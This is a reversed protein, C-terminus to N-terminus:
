GAWRRSCSSSGGRRRWAQQPAGAQIPNVNQAAPNNRVDQQGPRALPQQGPQGQPMGPQGPVPQANARACTASRNKIFACLLMPNAHLMSLVQQQQLPSSPSRLVRLLERLAQQSVTVPRLPSVGAQGLGPQPAMNLPQGHQAMMAPGPMGSQVPPAQPSGGQAWPPQQQMGTPGMRAELHGGPQVAVEVGAAPPGPLPPQATEPGTPPIVQSNPPTPQPQSPPQPAQPAAATPSPLGQQQSAAGAWQMSAMRRRLLQARQLRELLQQRRLKQKINLCFPMPCKNEQCQKAHYCCLAILQKCIPCGGNNKQRCDQTHRMVRKMKQCSPLSCSANHCQCAHVLSEICRQISLHHLDGPSQAAVAQQNNSEEEQGAGVKEM